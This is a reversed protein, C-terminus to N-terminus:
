VEEGDFQIKFPTINKHHATTANCKALHFRKNRSASANSYNRRLEVGFKIRKITM